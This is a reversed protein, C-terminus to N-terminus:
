DFVLQNILRGMRFQFLPFFCNEGTRKKIFPMPARVSVRQQLWIGSNVRNESHLSWHAFSLFSEINRQFNQLLSFFWISNMCNIYQRSALPLCYWSHIYVHTVTWIRKRFCITKSHLHTLNKRLSKHVNHGTHPACTVWSIMSFAPQRHTSTTSLQACM